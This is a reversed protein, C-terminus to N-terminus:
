ALGYFVACRVDVTGGAMALQLFNSGSM